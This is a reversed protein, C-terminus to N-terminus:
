YLMVLLRGRFMVILGFANSFRVFFILLRNMM